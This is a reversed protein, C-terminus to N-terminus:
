GPQRPEWYDLLAYGETERQELQLCPRETAAFQETPHTPLLIGVDIGHSGDLGRPDCPDVACPRGTRQDCSTKRRKTSAQRAHRLSSRKM